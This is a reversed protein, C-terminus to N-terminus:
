KAETDMQEQATNFSNVRNVKDRNHTPNPINLHIEETPKLTSTPRSNRHQSTVGSFLPIPSYNNEDFGMGGYEEMNKHEQVQIPTVDKCLM